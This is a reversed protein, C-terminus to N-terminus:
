RSERAVLGPVREILRHGFYAGHNPRRLRRLGRHDIHLFSGAPKSVTIEIRLEHRQRM